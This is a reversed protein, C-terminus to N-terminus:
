SPEYKIGKGKYNDTMQHCPKCMTLGNEVVYREEPFKAWSKIHHAELYVGRDGCERCTYNDREFVQTRWEQYEKTGTLHVYRKHQKRGQLDWRKVASVRRVEKEEDSMKRGRNAEWALKRAETLNSPIKGRHALSLKLRYEPTVHARIM